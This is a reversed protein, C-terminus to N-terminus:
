GRSEFPMCEARPAGVRPSASSSSGMRPDAPLRPAKADRLDSHASVKLREQMCAVAERRKLANLVM